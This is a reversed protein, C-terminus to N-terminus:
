ESQDVQNGWKMIILIEQLVQITVISLLLLVISFISATKM